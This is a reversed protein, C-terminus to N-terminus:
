ENSQALQKIKSWFNPDDLAKRACEQQARKKSSGEGFPGDIGAIQIKFCFSRDHEPGLVKDMKYIPFGLGMKQTREQLLSKFDQDNKLVLLEQQLEPQFLRNVFKRAAEFGSDREVAAIIAEFADSLISPKLHGGSRMEGKGLLLAKGLNLQNAKKALTEESVIASKQKSLVGEDVDPHQTFLYEAIVAGLIADGLFELRENHPVGKEYGYSAHTLAQKLIAKDKFTYGILTEIQKM